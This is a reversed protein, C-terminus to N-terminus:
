EFEKPMELREYELSLEVFDGTHWNVYPDRLQQVEDKSLKGEYMYYGAQKINKVVEDVTKKPGYLFLLLNKPM